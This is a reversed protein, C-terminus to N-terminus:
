GLANNPPLDVNGPPAGPDVNNPDQHPLQPLTSPGGGSQTIRCPEPTNVRLQGRSSSNLYESPDFQMGPLRVVKYLQTQFATWDISKIGLSKCGFDYAVKYSPCVGNPSQNCQQAFLDANLGAKYATAIDNNHFETGTGDYTVTPPTLAGSQIAKKISPTAIDVLYQGLSQANKMGRITIGAKKDVLTNYASVEDKITDYSVYFSVNLPYSIGEATIVTPVSLGDGLPQGEDYFFLVVNDAILQKPTLKQLEKDQYVQDIEDSANLHVAFYSSQPPDDIATVHWTNTNQQPYVFSLVILLALGIVAIIGFVLRVYGLRQWWNTYPNNALANKQFGTFM